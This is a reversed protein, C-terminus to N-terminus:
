KASNELEQLYYKSMVMLEKQRNSVHKNPFAEKGSTKAKILKGKTFYYRAEYKTELKTYDLRSSDSANPFVEQKVFVFILQENEYYFQEITHGCSIGFTKVVKKIQGKKYYGSLEQGGDPAEGSKKNFYDNDLIKVTYTSDTNIKEVALSIEKILEEKQGYLSASCFLFISWAIVSIFRLAQGPDLNWRILRPLRGKVDIEM